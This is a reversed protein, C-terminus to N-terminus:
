NFSAMLLKFAPSSQFPEQKRLPAHEKFTFGSTNDCYRVHKSQGESLAATLRTVTPPFGSPSMPSHPGGCM